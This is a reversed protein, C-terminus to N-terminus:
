QVEIFIAGNSDATVGNISRIPPIGCGAISKARACPGVYDDRVSERLGIFITNSGVDYRWEVDTGFELQIIGDLLTAVGIKGIAEVPLADFVRLARIELPTQAASSFRYNVDQGASGSGFVVFGSVNGALPELPLPTYFPVPRVYTGVLLGESATGIVVSVLRASLAVSTVYVTDLVTNPISVALDVLIDDPLKRGAEDLRPADERIPYARGENENYWERM